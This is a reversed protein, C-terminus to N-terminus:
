NFIFYFYKHILYLIDLLHSQTQHMIGKVIYIINSKSTPTHTHQLKHIQEIQKLIYGDLYINLM